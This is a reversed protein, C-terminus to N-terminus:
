NVPVLKGAALRANKTAFQSLPSDPSLKDVEKFALFATQYDEKKLALEGRLYLVRDVIAIDPPHRLIAQIYAESETYQKKKYAEYALAWAAHSWYLGDRHRRYVQNLLNSAKRGNGNTLDDMALFYLAGDVYKFNPFRDALIQFYEVSQFSDGGSEYYIGLLWLADPYQPSSPFEDAIRELLAVGDQEWGLGYKTKSQILLAEALVTEPPNGAILEKLRADAQEYRQQGFASKAERLLRRQEAESLTSGSAIVTTGGGKAIIGVQEYTERLLDQQVPDNMRIRSGLTQLVANAQEFNGLQAKALALLSCARAFTTEDMTGATGNVNYFITYQPPMAIENYFGSLIAELQQAAAEYSRSRYLREANWFRELDTGATQLTPTRSPSTSNGPTWQQDNRNAYSGGSGNRGPTTNMEALQTATDTCITLLRQNGSLASQGQMENLLATAKASDGNRAYALTLLSCARFIAEESLKKTGTAVPLSFYNIIMRNNLADFQPVLVSELLRITGQWNRQDFLFVSELLTVEDRYLTGAAIKTQDLIIKAEDMRKLGYLFRVKMLQDDTTPNTLQALTQLGEDFKNLRGWCRAIIRQSDAFYTSAPYRRQFETMTNIADQFATREFLAVGWQYTAQEAHAPSSMLQQYIANAENIKGLKNKAWALGLKSDVIREGEPFIYTAQDFYFEAEDAAGNRMAIDGLYYLVFQLNADHPLKTVFEELRPKAIGYQGQIYPIEALRFLAARDFENTIGTEVLRNFYIEAQQYQRLYMLSEALYFTAENIKAHTQFQAVFSDFGLRASDYNKGDFAAKAANFQNLADDGRLPAAILIVTCLTLAKIWNM